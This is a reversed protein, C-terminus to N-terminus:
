KIITLQGLKNLKIIYDEGIKINKLCIYIENADIKQWDSAGGSLDQFIFFLDNYSYIYLFILPPNYDSICRTSSSFIIEYNQKLDTKLSLSHFTTTSLDQNRLLYTKNNLNENIFSNIATTTAVVEDCLKTTTAFALVEFSTSSSFHIGAGCYFKDNKEIIRQSLDSTINLAFSLDKAVSKLYFIDKNLTNFSFFISFVLSIIFLVIAIEVLTFAKM